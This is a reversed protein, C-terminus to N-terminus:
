PEGRGVSGGGLVKGGPRSRCSLPDLLQKCTAPSRLAQAGTFAPGHNSSRPWVVIYFSLLNASAWRCTGAAQSQICVQRSLGKVIPSPRQEAGPCLQAGPVRQPSIGPSIGTARRGGPSHAPYAAAAGPTTPFNGASTAHWARQQTPLWPPQQRRQRSGRSRQAGRQVLAGSPAEEAAKGEAPNGGPLTPLHPQGPAICGGPPTQAGGAPASLLFPWSWHSAPACGRRCGPTPSM